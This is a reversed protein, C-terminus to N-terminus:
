NTWTAIGKRADEITSSTLTQQQPLCTRGRALNAGPIGCEHCDITPEAVIPGLDTVIRADSASSASTVAHEAGAGLVGVGVATGAIAGVAM